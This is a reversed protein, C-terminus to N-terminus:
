LSKIVEISLGTAAAIITLDVGKQKLKKATVEILETRVEEKVEEKVEQKVEEKVEQKVEEKVEAKVEERMVKREERIMRMMSGHKAKTMEFFMVQEPTMKSVDLIEVAREIWDESM